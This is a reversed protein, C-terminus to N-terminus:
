KPLHETSMGRTLIAVGLCGAQQHVMGTACVTEVVTALQVMEASTFNSLQKVRKQAIVKKPKLVATAGTEDLSFVRLSDTLQAWRDIKTEQNEFM